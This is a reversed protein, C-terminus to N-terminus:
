DFTLFLFPEPAPVAQVTVVVSGIQPVVHMSDMVDDNVDAIEGVFLSFL